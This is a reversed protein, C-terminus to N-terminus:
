DELPYATIVYVTVDDVWEFVVAIPDRGPTEGFCIPRGSTDSTDDAPFNEVVHEVDDVTLGHQRIHEMNEDTWIFDFWPM